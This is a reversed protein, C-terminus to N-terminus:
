LTTLRCVARFGIYLMVLSPIILLAFSWHASQCFLIGAASGIIGCPLCILTHLYERYGPLPRRPDRTTAHSIAIILWGLALPLLLQATLHEM